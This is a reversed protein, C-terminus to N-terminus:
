KSRTATAKARRAQRAVEREAQIRIWESPSVSRGLKASMNAAAQQIVAWHEDRIYLNHSNM